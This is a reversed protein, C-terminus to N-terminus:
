SWRSKKNAAQQANTAWRCNGPEYNGDNNIRDLTMGEPREGMDALFNEFTSWRECVTIGRGGYRHYSRYSTQRCRGHMDRWSNHTRTGVGGHLYANKNGVRAASMNKRAEASMKVGLNAGPGEHRQWQRRSAEALKSRHEASKVEGKHAASVAAKTAESQPHGIHRRCTCGPICKMGVIKGSKSHAYCPFSTYTSALQGAVCATTYAVTSTRYATLPSIRGRVSRLRQPM